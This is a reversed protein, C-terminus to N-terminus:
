KQEEVKVAGNKAFEVEWVANGKFPGMSKVNKCGANTRVSIIKSEPAYGCIPCWMQYSNMGYAVPEFRHKQLRGNADKKCPYNQFIRISREGIINGSCDKIPVNEIFDVSHPNTFNELKKLQFKYKGM